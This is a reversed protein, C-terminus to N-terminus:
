TQTLFERIIINIVDYKRPYFDKEERQIFKPNLPRFPPRDRDGYGRGGKGNKAKEEREDLAKDMKNNELQKKIDEAVTGGLM